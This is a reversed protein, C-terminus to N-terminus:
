AGTWKCAFWLCLTQQIFRHTVDSRLRELQLLELLRSHSVSQDLFPSSETEEDAAEFRNHNSSAEAISHKLASTRLRHTPPRVIERTPSHGESIQLLFQWRIFNQHLRSFVFFRRSNPQIFLVKRSYIVAVFFTMWFNPQIFHIKQFHSFFDNLFKSPCGQPGGLSEVAM